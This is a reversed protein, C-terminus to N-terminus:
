GMRRDPDPTTLLYYLCAHLSIRSGDCSRVRHACHVFIVSLRVPMMAYARSTYIVDRALFSCHQSMESVDGTSIIMTM